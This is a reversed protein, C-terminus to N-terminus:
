VLVMDDKHVIESKSSYGLIGEIKDSHVGKIKDIETSSFSSIGKALSKNNIM